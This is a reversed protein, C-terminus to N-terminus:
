FKEGTYIRSYRSIIRKTSSDANTILQPGFNRRFGMQTMCKHSVEDIDYAMKVANKGRAFSEVQFSPMTASETNDLCYRTGPNGMMLLRAYYIKDSAPTSSSDMSYNGKGVISSIAESWIEYVDEVPNKVYDVM